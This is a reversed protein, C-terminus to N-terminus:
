LNDRRIKDRIIMLDDFVIPPSGRSHHTLKAKGTALLLQKLGEDQTFKAYQALYMEQKHRKGFFDPDIVVQVPRILKGKLKGTKGGASKAAAPDKSLDTGSDISFSLYFEPNNKKFKSAQYYHEVSAWKHDDLTFPKESVWFNSLKKRWQPINALEKYEIIKDNPIKEGAGKGPLPKDNSKSYFLFVVDDDYLGRLKAESLDDYTEEKVVKKKHTDKFKQFDPILAFVGANQEMCKETTMMKIDYPIESFKFIMKKKYGVTMYHSGTYDLIIYFEPNFVGKTELLNDVHGCQLINKIDGTRYAESSLIILKINLIRELTYISWMEAWFECTRVKKKLKELTDIGKMFKYERLLAATIRKEEVLKDHEKKVTKANESVLKQENRDIVTQFKQRLLVYEAELKKIENTEVVMNNSYMDFQEKYNEFVSENVEDSLKKRIKAVSTQQSISSFADRITSFLCDGGGENDIITYNPNKMYKEIWNDSPSEHFKEKIDKAIQATEEKLQPPIPVGKTLIFVDKRTEPIEYHEDYQEKVDNKNNNEDDSSDDDEKQQASKSKQATKKRLPVDPELRLSNLMEKTVFKYILPEELKEVDINNNADLYSIYDSAKIEYVGIQIVKNNTKVLYVPFYLVNEEEFTNKANGVAIVVDIDYIELQYLNAEMKLDGVDVSKLEPYSVNEDIKSLVM